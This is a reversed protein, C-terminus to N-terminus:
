GSEGLMETIGDEEMTLIPAGRLRVQTMAVVRFEEKEHSTLPTLTFWSPSLYLKDVVSGFWEGRLILRNANESRPWIRQM